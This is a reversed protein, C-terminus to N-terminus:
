SVHIVDRKNENEFLIGSIIRVIFVVHTYPSLPFYGNCEIFCCMIIIYYYHLQFKDNITLASMHSTTTHSGEGCCKERMM